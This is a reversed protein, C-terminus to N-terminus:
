KNPPFRLVRGEPRRKSYKVLADRFGVIGSKGEIPYANKIESCLKEENNLLNGLYSDFYISSHQKPDTCQLIKILDNM